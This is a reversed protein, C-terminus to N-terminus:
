YLLNQHASIYKTFEIIQPHVSYLVRHVRVLTGAKFTGHDGWDYNWSNAVLWYPTGAEVGWGLIRCWRIKLDKNREYPDPDLDSHPDPFTYDNTSFFYRKNIKFVKHKLFSLSMLQCKRHSVSPCLACTTRPYIVGTGVTGHKPDTNSYYPYMM